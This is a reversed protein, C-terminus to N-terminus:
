QKPMSFSLVVVAGERNRAPNTPAPNMASTCLLAARAGPASIAPM